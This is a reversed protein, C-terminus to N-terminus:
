GTFRDLKLTFECAFASVIYLGLPAPETSLTMPRCACPRELQSPSWALATGATNASHSLTRFFSSIKTLIGKEDLCIKVIRLSIMLLNPM